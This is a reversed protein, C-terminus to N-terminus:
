GSAQGQEQAVIEQAAQARPHGAIVTDHARTQVEMAAVQTELKEVKDILEEVKDTLEENSLGVTPPKQPQASIDRETM